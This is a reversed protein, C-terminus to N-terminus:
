LTIDRTYINAVYEIFDARNFEKTDCDVLDGDEDYELDCEFVEKLEDIYMSITIDMNSESRRVAAAHYGLRCKYSSALEYHTEDPWVGDYVSDLVYLYTSESKGSKVIMCTVDLQSIVKEFIETFLTM